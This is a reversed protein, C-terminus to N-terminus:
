RLFSRRTVVRVGALRSKRQLANRWNKCNEGKCDRSKMATSGTASSWGSSRLASRRSVDRRGAEAGLNKTWNDAEPSSDGKTKKGAIKHCTGRKM